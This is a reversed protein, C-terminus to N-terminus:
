VLFKFEKKCIQIKRFNPFKDFFLRWSIKQNKPKQFFYEKQRGGNKCMDKSFILKGPHKTKTPWIQKKKALVVIKHSKKFFYMYTTDCRTLFPFTSFTVFIVTKSWIQKCLPSNTHTSAM